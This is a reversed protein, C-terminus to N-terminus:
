QFVFKQKESLKAFNIKSQNEFCLIQNSIKNYIPFIPILFRTDLPAFKKWWENADRMRPLFDEDRKPSFFRNRGKLRSLKAFSYRPTSFNAAWLWDDHFLFVSFFTFPFFLPLILSFFFCFIPIRINVIFSVLLLIEFERFRCKRVTRKSIVIKKVGAKQWPIICTYRTQIYRCTIPNPTVIHVRHIRMYFFFFFFPSVHLTPPLFPLSSSPFVKQLEPTFPSPIIPSPLWFNSGFSVFCSSTFRFWIFYRIRSTRCVRAAPETLSVTGNSSRKSYVAVM